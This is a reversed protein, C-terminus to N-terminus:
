REDAYGSSNDTHAVVRGTVADFIFYPGPAMAALEKMRDNAAGLGSVTEKWIAGSNSPIGSFIDFQPIRMFPGGKSSCVHYAPTSIIETGM